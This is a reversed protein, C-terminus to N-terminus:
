SFTPYLHALKTRADNETFQWKIQKEAKNTAEVWAAVKASMEEFTAIRDKLCQRKLLSFGIEAVNLWSGHKPTFHVELRDAIRSAEAAPFAAYLSAIDHTNLNDMVLVVKEADKHHVDVIERIFLAWDTRCRTRTLTVHRIGTLPEISLFIDAVGNLVNEDDVRNCHGPKMAIPNRVQRHVAAIVRRGMWACWRCGQIM